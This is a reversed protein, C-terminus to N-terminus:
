SNNLSYIDMPPNSQDPKMFPVLCTRPLGNSDFTFSTCLDLSRKAGDIGYCGASPTSGTKCESCTKAALELKEDDTLGKIDDEKLLPTLFNTACMKDTIKNYDDIYHKTCTGSDCHFGKCCRQLVNCKETEKRCKLLVSLVYYVFVGLVASVFFGIFFEGQM